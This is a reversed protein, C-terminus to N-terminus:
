PKNHTMTMSGDSGLADSPVDFRAYPQGRTAVAARLACLARRLTSALIKSAALQACPKRLTPARSAAARPPVGELASLVRVRM